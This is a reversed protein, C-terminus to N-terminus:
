GARPRRIARDCLGGSVETLEAALARCQPCRSLHAEVRDRQAAPLAGRVWAGLRDVTARHPYPRDLHQQLFAQRLGERARYALAAAGNPTLGFHPAVEAPSAGEVATRWLVRQWREPLTTFARAALGAELGAVAPDEWPVGPDHRTLDGSFELRHDARARDRSINRLTTFLYPRLAGDPGGGGRLAALVRVFAEAVLDDAEASSCALQGALMRAPRAHRRFLVGYADMDGARVAVLLEADEPTGDARLADAGTTGTRAARHPASM